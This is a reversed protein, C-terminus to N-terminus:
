EIDLLSWHIKKQCIFLQGLICYLLSCLNRTGVFGSTCFRAIGTKKKLFKRIRLFLAQRENLISSKLKLSILFLGVFLHGSWAVKRQGVPKAFVKCFKGIIELLERTESVCCDNIKKNTCKTNSLLVTIDVFLQFCHLMSAYNRKLSYCFPFCIFFSHHRM